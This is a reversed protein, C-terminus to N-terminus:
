RNKLNSIKLYVDNFTEHYVKRRVSLIEKGLKDLERETQAFGRLGDALKMLIELLERHSKKLVELEKKLADFDNKSIENM